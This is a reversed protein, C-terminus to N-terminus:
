AAPSVRVAKREKFGVRCSLDHSRKAHYPWSNRTRSVDTLNVTAEEMSRLASEFPDCRNIHDDRSFRLTRVVLDLSIGTFSRTPRAGSM